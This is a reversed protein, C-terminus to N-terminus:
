VIVDNLWGLSTLITKLDYDDGSSASTDFSINGDYDIPENVTWSSDVGMIGTAISTRGRLYLTIASTGTNVSVSMRAFEMESGNMWCFWTRPELDYLLADQSTYSSPVVIDAAVGFAQQLVAKSTADAARFTPIVFEAVTAFRSIGDGNNTLDGTHTPVDITVAGIQDNVSTVPASTLFGSDNTLESTKSPISAGLSVTLTGNSYSQQLGTSAVIKTTAERTTVTWGGTKTLKYVFVQDGQQSASHSSISRYYQFEVETPTSANNVYAMFALRTQSGSAPNSNSSARCYVVKQATYASIFDDWTSNGYSLITMGTIFGSDNTLDSTKSPITPKNTLDDYDGSFLPTDDPLANVDSATLTVDSSLAHGNVTTDTGVKAALVANLATKLDEIAGVDYFSFTTNNADFDVQQGNTGIATAGGFSVGGDTVTATTTGNKDTISITATDGSKSVTATPSFGDQGDQGDNGDVGDFYDVGKIPTYGDDGKDGKIGAAGSMDVVFQYASSGKIYVKANDPDEVTSTIMVYEGIQVDTGSYDANMEAVSAYTKVIHFADGTDGKDGKEGKLSALQEPTFDDYTFPDGQEGRPGILSGTTFTSGSPMVFTITGDSNYIIDEISEYVIEETTGKYDSLTIKVGGDVRTVVARAGIYKPTGESAGMRIRGNESEYLRIAENGNSEGISIHISNDSM